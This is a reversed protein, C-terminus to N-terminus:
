GNLANQLVFAHVPLKKSIHRLKIKNELVTNMLLNEIDERDSQM